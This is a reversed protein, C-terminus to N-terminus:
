RGCIALEIISEYVDDATRDSTVHDDLTDSNALIVVQRGGDPVLSQTSHGAYGGDHGYATGCPVHWAM